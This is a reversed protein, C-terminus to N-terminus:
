MRWRKGCKTCTCYVTTGEDASRTQLFDFSIDTSHCKGCAIGADPVNSLEMSTLDRLLAEGQERVVVEKAVEEHCPLHVHVEKAPLELIKRYSLSPAGSRLHCMRGDRVLVIARQAGFPYAVACGGASCYVAHELELAEGSLEEGTIGKSALADRISGLCWTRQTTAMVTSPPFNSILARSKKGHKPFDLWRECM